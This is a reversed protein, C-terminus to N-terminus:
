STVVQKKRKNKPRNPDLIAIYAPYNRKWHDLKKYFLYEVQSKDVKSSKSQKTNAARSKQVKKKERKFSRRGAFSGEVLNM